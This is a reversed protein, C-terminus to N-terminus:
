TLAEKLIARALAARRSITTHDVGLHPAAEANTLGRLEVLAFAQAVPPPLTRFARDFDARFLAEDLGFGKAEGDRPETDLPLPNLRDLRSAANRAWDTLLNLGIRWLLDPTPTDSRALRAFAESALDEGTEPDSARALHKALREYEADFLEALTM